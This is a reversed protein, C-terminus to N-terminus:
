IMTYDQYGGSALRDYGGFVKVFLMRSHYSLPLEFLAEGFRAKYIAQCAPRQNHDLADAGPILSVRVARSNAARLRDLIGQRDLFLNGVGSYDYQVPVQSTVAESLVQVALGALCSNDEEFVALLFLGLYHGAVVTM